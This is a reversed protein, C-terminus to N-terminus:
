VGPVRRFLCFVVGGARGSRYIEWGARPMAQERRAASAEVYILADGSLWGQAQLRRFVEAYVECEHPPDLFVVDFSRQAPRALFRGVDQSEVSLTEAGLATANARLARAAAINCDVATCSRAGRSLAELGLAGSGAYLDLCRAGPLFPQLWNFLTERVRDPTPRLEPLAPFHLRRGRWRGAIIRVQQTRASPTRVM